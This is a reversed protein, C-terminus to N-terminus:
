TSKSERNQHWPQNTFFTLRPQRLKKESICHSISNLLVYLQPESGLKSTLDVPWIIKVFMKIKCPVTFLQSLCIKLRQSGKHKLEPFLCVCKYGFVLVFFHIHCHSLQWTSPEAGYNEIPWRKVERYGPLASSVIRWKVTSSVLATPPWM